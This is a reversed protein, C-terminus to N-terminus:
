RVQEAVELEERMGARTVRLRERVAPIALRRRQQLLAQREDVVRHARVVHRRRRHHLLHAAHLAGHALQRHAQSPSALLESPSASLESPSALLESPSV